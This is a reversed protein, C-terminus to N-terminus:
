PGMLRDPIHGTSINILQLHEQMIPFLPSGSSPATTGHVRTSACGPCSHRRGALSGTNQKTQPRVMAPLLAEACVTGQRDVWVPRALASNQPPSSSVLAVLQQLWLFLAWLPAVPPTPLMLAAGPTDQSLCPGPPIPVLPPPRAPSESYLSPNNGDSSQRPTPRRCAQLDGAGM